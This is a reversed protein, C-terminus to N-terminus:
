DSRPLRTARRTRGRARRSDTEGAALFANWSMIGRPSNAGISSPGIASASSDDCGRLGVMRRLLPFSANQIEAPPCSNIEPFVEGLMQFYNSSKFADVLFLVRVDSQKLVYQLEFPRYAPNINVLVAGIKAAAFQLMVWQPVNTAWIAVHDGTTLGVRLCGERM